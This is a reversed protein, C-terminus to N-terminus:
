LGLYAALCFMSLMHFPIACATILVLTLSVDGFLQPAVYTLLVIVLALITGSTLAFLIAYFAVAQARGRERAILFTTASPQGFSGLTISLLTLVTLSAMIGVAAVGLWRAIIVGSALSGFAILLRAGLTWIVNRSFRAAGSEVM